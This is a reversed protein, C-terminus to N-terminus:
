LLSPLKPRHYSDVLLLQPHITGKTLSIKLAQTVIHENKWREAPVLKYLQHSFLNQDVTAVM